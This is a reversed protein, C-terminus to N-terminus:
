EQMEAEDKEMTESEIKSEGEGKLYRDAYSVVDSLEDILIPERGACKVYYGSDPTGNHAEIIKIVRM